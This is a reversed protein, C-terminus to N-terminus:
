RSTNYYINKKSEDIEDLTDFNSTQICDNQNSMPSYTTRVYEIYEDNLQIFIDFICYMPYFFYNSMYLNALLDM